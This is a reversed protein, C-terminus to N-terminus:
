GSSPGSEATKPQFYLCTQRQHVLGKLLGLLRRGIRSYRHQERWREANKKRLVFSEECSESQEIWNIIGTAIDRARCGPLQYTIGAVDAFIDLPPVAVDRGSAIGYRVAGSSSEGSRQYPFLVLQAKELLQLSQNESLFETHMEVFADLKLMSINRRAQAIAQASEPAPFEANVMDLRVERGNARVIAVAEILESLGKHPLFFGYSALRVVQGSKVPLVASPSYDLVGHPLLAVNAVLGLGKLRNLDAPTHVLVRDCRALAPILVSLKKEPAHAPDITAHLTVVVVRGAEAQRDIFQALNELKFFGYNFQIVLVDPAQLKLSRDLEELTDQGDMNWCRTVNDADAGVQELAYPAHIQVKAELNRVLHESYAAIGCRTNWTSVWGIRPVQLATKGCLGRVAEINRRAVDKWKFGRLLLERGAAAREQREAAPLAWLERMLRSMHDTRPNAWVSGYLGFHTEAREFDYDILWATKPTCFDTQGSWGTTIVALGSLMAEAMPLGFGEARSPALLAQCQEYLAKLQGDPLDEEIIVVHPYDKRQERAQGLWEHIRNHPNPVTKIVLSVDDRASFAQGYARLLVDVGKRPFCSSVHLFRFQRAQLTWEPDPKTREWHDVGNGSVIMPVCVGSDLLVKRCHESVVTMGQLYDNFNEVWEHPFTSEEWAYGHMMNLQARMGTVRPPYINRSCVNAVSSPTSAASNHLQEILPNNRLFVTSPEFDGPGETSHLAVNHGLEHFAKALERNVLALSYSSDFPGEMRWILRDPLSRPRCFELAERENRGIADAWRRVQDDDLAKFGAPVLDAAITGILRRYRCEVAEIWYSWERRPKISPVKEWARLARRAAEDWSFKAAQREGHIRLQQRWQKDELVRAISNSIARVDLPDFLAEELGIVEPLSTTNAGIVPAGCAMAELAPLGFGEHWSPFVYLQCLNYLQVLEEDTVYNAFLLEDDNLGASQALRRLQGVDAASMNGAFLLQHRARLGRPLAAYSDILRPLNKREDAGGTYFVFPRHISFKKKLERATTEDINQRRFYSEVGERTNVFLEAPRGLVSIAEQQSSESVALYIAARKLSEVKCRYYHEYRPNPKLYYNPNLLPILDHITVSVPTETDFWGISTVADDVHGEFLSCIHIIDPQLNALFAERLREAVERRMENGSQDQRVPGSAHWVRINEHPLLNVFADRISEIATPFLDSLALIIEHKGRNRVVAKAFSMTYRGIGRFRSETQAGQMDIVIRM